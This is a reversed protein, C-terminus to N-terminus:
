CVTGSAVQKFIISQCIAVRTLGRGDHWTSNENIGVLCVISSCESLWVAGRVSTWTSLSVGLILNFYSVNGFSIDDWLLPSRAGGLHPPEERTKARQENWVKQKTANATV